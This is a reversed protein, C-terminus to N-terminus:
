PCGFCNPKGAILSLNTWTLPDFSRAPAEERQLFADTGSRRAGDAHRSRQERERHRHEELPKAGVQEREGAGRRFAPIGIDPQHIQRPPVRRAQGEIRGGVGARDPRGVAAADKEVRLAVAMRVQVLTRRAAPTSVLQQDLRVEPFTGVIPRGVSPEDEVVLLIRLGPVVQPDEREGSLSLRKREQLRREVFPLPREVLALIKHPLSPYRAFFILVIFAVVAAIGFLVALRVANPQANPAQTLGISLMIVVLLTDLLREFSFGEGAKPDLFLTGVVHSLQSPTEMYLFSADMGSLPKM